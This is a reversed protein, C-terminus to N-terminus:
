DIPRDEQERRRHKEFSNLLNVPLIGKARTENQFFLVRTM